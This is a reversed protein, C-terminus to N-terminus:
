KMFESTNGAITRLLWSDPLEGPTRAPLLTPYLFARFVLFGTLIEGKPQHFRALPKLDQKLTTEEM